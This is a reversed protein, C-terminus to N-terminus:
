FTALNAREGKDRTLVAIVSAKHLEITLPDYAKGDGTTCSTMRIRETAGASIHAAPCHYDDNLVARVNNWDQSDQNKITLYFGAHQIAAKLKQDGKSAGQDIPSACGFAMAALATVFVAKIRM